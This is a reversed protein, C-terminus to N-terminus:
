EKDLKKIEQLLDILAKEKRTIDERLGKIEKLINEVSINETSPSSEKEDDGKSVQITHTLVFIGGVFTVALILGAIIM